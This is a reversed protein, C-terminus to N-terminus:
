SLREVLPVDSGPGENETLGVATCTSKFTCSVALLAGDRVGRVIQLKWRKGTWQEVFPVTKIESGAGGVAICLARSTCAVDYLFAGGGWPDIRYRVPPTSGISWSHGRAREILPFDYVGRSTDYDGVATCGARRVCSVGSFGSDNAEGCKPLRASREISWHRGHWREVLPVECETNDNLFGGVATCSRKSSCSIASLVGGDM